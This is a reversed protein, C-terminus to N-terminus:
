LLSALSRTRVGCRERYDCGGCKADDGLRSPPGDLARVTRLVRRYAAKARTTVRVERVVGHRPYEVFAREVPDRERWALAKAAAVARVRQPEWVGEEPPEGPSVLSPTLPDTLVKAARGRCDRGSLLVDTEAPDAIGPWRALVAAVRSRYVDPAVAVSRRLTADGAEVLAPYRGALERAREVSEPPDLAGERRRYYLQRPCYAATALEYFAVPDSM